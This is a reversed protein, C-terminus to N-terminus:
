KPFALSISVGDKSYHLELSDTKAVKSYKAFYLYGAVASRTQGEPLARRQIKDTSRAPAPPAPPGAPHDSVAVGSYTGVTQRTGNVPDSSRQYIVGAQTTVDTERGLQGRNERWPAVDQPREAYALQRGMKVSFDSSAVEFPQANEPYIAVEVVVSQKAIESSFMKAVQDSPVIAAAIVAGKVSGHVPYDGSSVRPPVGADGAFAAISLVAGSFLIRGV